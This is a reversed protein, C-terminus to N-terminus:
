HMSNAALVLLAQGVDQLLAEIGATYKTWACNVSPDDMHYM